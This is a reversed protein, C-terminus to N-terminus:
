EKSKVIRWIRFIGYLLFFIGIGYRVPPSFSREFLPTFVVMFAMAIYVVVMFLGFIYTMKNM